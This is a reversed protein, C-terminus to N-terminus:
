LSGPIPHSRPHLENVGWQNVLVKRFQQAPRGQFHFPNIFKMRHNSTTDQHHVKNEYAATDMRISVQVGEQFSIDTVSGM